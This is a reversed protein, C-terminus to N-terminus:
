HRCWGGFRVAGKKKNRVTSELIQKYEENQQNNDNNNKKMEAQRQIIEKQTEYEREM